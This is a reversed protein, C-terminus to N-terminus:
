YMPYNNEPLEIGGSEGKESKRGDDKPRPKSRDIWDLARLLLGPKEAPRDPGSDRELLGRAEIEALIREALIKQGKPNPHRFERYVDAEGIFIESLDVVDDRGELGARVEDYFTRTLELYHELGGHSEAQELLMDKEARSMKRAGLGLTPQLFTLHAAGLEAALLTRQRTNRLWSVPGPAKNELGLTFGSFDKSGAAIARCLELDMSSFAPHGPLSHVSTPLDNIGSLSLVLTPALAPGDRMLKATEKFSNYSAVGGNFVANSVGKAALMEFLYMPWHGGLTRDSTSGGLTLIRNRAGADSDGEFWFDYGPVSRIVTGPPVQGEPLLPGLNAKRTFGLLPDFDFPYTVSGSM